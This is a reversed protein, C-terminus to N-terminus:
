LTSRPSPPSRELRWSALLSGRCLTLTRTREQYDPVEFGAPVRSAESRKHRLYWAQLREPAMASVEPGVKSTALELIREASPLEPDEYDEPVVAAKKRAEERLWLLGERDNAGRESVWKAMTPHPNEKIWTEMFKGRVDAASPIDVGKKECERALWEEYLRKREQSRRMLHAEVVLGRRYMGEFDPVVVVACFTQHPDKATVPIPPVQTGMVSPAQTSELRDLDDLGDDAATAAASPVEIEDEDEKGEEEGGGAAPASEEEEQKSELADEHIQRLNDIADDVKPEVIGMQENEVNFKHEEKYYEQLEMHVKINRLAQEHNRQAQEQDMPTTEAVSFPVCTEKVEVPVLVQGQLRAIDERYATGSEGTASVGVIRICAQGNASPVFTNKHCANFLVVNKDPDQAEKFNPCQFGELSVPKDGGVGLDRLTPLLTLAQQDM